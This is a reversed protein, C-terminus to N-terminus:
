SELSQHLVHARAYWLMARQDRAVCARILLSTDLEVAVKVPTWTMSPEKPKMVAASRRLLWWREEVVSGPRSLITCRVVFVCRPRTMRTILPTEVAPIVLGWWQVGRLSRVVFAAQPLRSTTAMAVSITPRNYISHTEVVCTLHKTRVSMAQAVVRRPRTVHTFFVMVVCRSILRSSVIVIGSIIEHDYM